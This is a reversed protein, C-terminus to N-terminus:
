TYHETLTINRDTGTCELTTVFLLIQGFVSYRIYESKSFADLVSYRIYENRFFSRIRIGFLAIRVWSNLYNSYNVFLKFTSFKLDLPEKLKPLIM